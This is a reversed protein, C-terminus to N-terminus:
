YNGSTKLIQAPYWQKGWKAQTIKKGKGKKINEYVLVSTEHTETWLVLAFM